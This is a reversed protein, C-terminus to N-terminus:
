MSEEWREKERKIEVFLELKIQGVVEVFIDGPFEKERGL